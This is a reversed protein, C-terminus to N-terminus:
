QIHAYLRRPGRRRAQCGTAASAIDASRIFVRQTYGQSKKPDHGEEGATSPCTLSLPHPEPKWLFPVLHVWSSFTKWPSLHSCTLPWRHPLSSKAEPKKSGTRKREPCETVEGNGAAFARKEARCSQAQGNKGWIDLNQPLARESPFFCDVMGEAAQAGSKRFCNLTSQVELQFSLRVRSLIPRGREGM